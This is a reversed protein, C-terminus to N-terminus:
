HTPSIVPLAVPAEGSPLDSLDSLAPAASPTVAAPASGQQAAMAELRQREARLFAVGLSTDGRVALQELLALGQAADGAEALAAALTHLIQANDPAEAVAEHALSVALLPDRVSTERARAYLWACSNKLMPSPSARAEDDLAARCLARVTYGDSYPMVADPEILSLEVIAADFTGNRDGQLRRAFAQAGLASSAAADGNVEALRAQLLLTAGDNPALAVAGATHAVARQLQVTAPPTLQATHLDRLGMVIHFRPSFEPKLAYAFVAAFSALAAILAVTSKFSRAPSVTVGDAAEDDGMTGIAPDSACVGYGLVFGMLLGGFHAVNNIMPVLAGLAFTGAVFPLLTTALFRGLARHRAVVAVALLAGTIGFIAGSAGATIGPMLAISLAFGFLGSVVYILLVRAPGVLREYVRGVQWLVWLNLGLHLAGVHVFCASLLRWVEGSWVRTPDVAGFTVLAATTGVFVPVGAWAMVLGIALNAFVLANTAWSHPDPGSLEDPDEDDDRRAVTPM